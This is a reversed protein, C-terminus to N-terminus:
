INLSSQTLILQFASILFVSEGATPRSVSFICDNGHTAKM